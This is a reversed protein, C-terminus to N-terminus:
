KDEDEIGKLGISKTGDTFKILIGGFQNVTATSIIKMGGRHKIVGGPYYIKNVDIPDYM